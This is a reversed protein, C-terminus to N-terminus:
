DNLRNASYLLRIRVTGQQTTRWLAFQIDENDLQM